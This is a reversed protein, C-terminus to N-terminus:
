ERETAVLVAVQVRSACSLKALIRQVHTDVTREAVVIREAIRRNTLGAAVLEAVQRERPTLVELAKAGAAPGAVAAPVGAAVMAGGLRILLHGCARLDGPDAFRDAAALVTEALEIEHELDRLLAAVETDDM